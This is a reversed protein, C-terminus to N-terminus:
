RLQKCKPRYRLWGLNNKTGGIAQSVEFGDLGRGNIEVM